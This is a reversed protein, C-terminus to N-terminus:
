QPQINAAEAVRAWRQAYSKVEEAFEASSSGVPEVGITLFREQMEPKRVAQQIVNQLKDVIEQPTGTPAFLGVFTAAQLNPYGAEATTPVDPLSKSRTDNTYALVKLKNGRAMGVVPPADAITMTVLGSVVANVSEASSKYPIALFETGTEQKLLETALRFPTASSAYTVDDPKQKAYEVLESLSDVPLKAPVTVFFPLRGINSIPIFDDMSYPLSKYLAPNITMPGSPGVLLTYGDPAAKAVSDTGVIGDVGPRNMVIVTQGLSASLEQAALRALVDTGGGVTYPVVLTIPKAPYTNAQAPAHAAMTLALLLTFQSLRPLQM